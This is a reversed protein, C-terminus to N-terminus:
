SSKKVVAISYLQKLKIRANDPKFQWNIQVKVMNRAKEWATVESALTEKNSIGQNICQRSLISLEIEAM